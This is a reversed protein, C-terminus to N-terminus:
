SRLAIDGRTRLRPASMGVCKEPTDAGARPKVMGVLCM